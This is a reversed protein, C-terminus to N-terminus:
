LPDEEDGLYSVAIRRVKPDRHTIAARLARHSAETKMETLAEAAQERVDSVPDELMAVIRPVLMVMRRDAAIRLGLQRLEDSRDELVQGVLGEPIPADMEELAELAAWRVEEDSDLALRTVAPISTRDKMDGLMQLATSKTEPDDSLLLARIPAAPVGRDFNSLAHLAAVRVEDDEDNLAAVLPNIARGDQIRGLADATARRVEADEDRLRAILAPVLSSDRTAGVRRSDPSMKREVFPPSVDAPASPASRAPGPPEASRQLEVDEASVPQAEVVASPEANPAIASTAEASVGPVFMAMVAVVGIALMAIRWQSKPAAWAARDLLRSVRVTLQSREEAFGAVPVGLPSAQMWEAVKVLAKALPIGGARRAAWEDALYEASHLIERRALRNLPQFFLARELLCALVLWLPDRRVLHALEHALMARLQETDLDQLATAPLCIEDSGLAVPSSIAQSATLRVSSAVEGSARLADLVALVSADTVPRRDGIRGTLVLRRATYVLVMPLALAVWLWTLWNLSLASNPSDVQEAAVENANVRAAESTALPGSADGNATQQADEANTAAPETTGAANASSLPQSHSPATTTPAAADIASVDAADANTESGITATAISLSGLPKVDFSAQLSATILGGVLATKWIIERVGHEVSRSRTLAWALGLLVTSHLAYTLLWAALNTAFTTLM